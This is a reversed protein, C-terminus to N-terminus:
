EVVVFVGKAVNDNPLVNILRINVTKDTKNIDSNTIRVQTIRRTDEDYKLVKLNEGNSERYPISLETSSLKYNDGSVQIFDSKLSEGIIKKKFVDRIVPEARGLRITMPLNSSIKSLSNLKVDAWKSKTELKSISNGDYKIERVLVDEGLITDLDLMQSTYKSTLELQNNSTKIVEKLGDEIKDKDIVTDKINHDENPVHNGKAVISLVGYEIVQPTSTKGSIVIDYLGPKLRNIGIPLYVNISKKNGEVTEVTGRYENGELDRFKVDVDNTFSDGTLTIKFKSDYNEPASGKFNKDVNPNSKGKSTKFSWEYEKNDLGDLDYYVIGKPLKAKYITDDKIDNTIPIYIKAKGVDQNKEKYAYIIEFEGLTNAKAELEESEFIGTNIGTEKLKLKIPHESDEKFKVEVDVEEKKNSYEKAGKDIVTIKIKEKVKYIEKEIYIEARRRYEDRDILKAKRIIQKNVEGDASQRKVYKVEIENTDSQASNNEWVRIRGEFRGSNNQTERLSIEESKDGIKVSVTAEEKLNSNSNLKHDFLTINIYDGVKYKDDDIYLQATGYENNISEQVQGTTKVKHDNINTVNTFGEFILERKEDILSDSEHLNEYFEFESIAINENIKLQENINDFVVTLYNGAKDGPFGKYLGEKDYSWNEKDPNTAKVKSSKDENAEVLDISLVGVIMLISLTYSIIRNMKINM